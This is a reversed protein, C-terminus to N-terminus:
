ATSIIEEFYEHPNVFSNWSEKGLAGMDWGGGGTEIVLGM